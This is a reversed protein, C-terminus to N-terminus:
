GEGAAVARALQPALKDVAYPVSLVSPFAMATAPGIGFGVFAGRAVAPV